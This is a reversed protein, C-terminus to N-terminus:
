EPKKQPWLTAAIAALVGGIASLIEVWNLGAPKTPPPVPEVDPEPTPAPRRPRLLEAPDPDQEPDYAGDKVRLDEVRSLAQDLQDATPESRFRWVVKGRGKSDPPRQLTVGEPLGVGKVAWHDPSYSQVLIKDRHEALSPSALAALVRKRYGADSSVVTLRLRGSDDPLGAGFALDAFAQARTVEKGCRSYAPSGPIKSVDVGTPLPEAPPLDDPPGWLLGVALIMLHM